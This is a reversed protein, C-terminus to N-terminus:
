EGKECCLQLKIDFRCCAIHIIEKCPKVMDRLILCAFALRLKKFLEADIFKGLGLYALQRLSLLLLYRKDYGYYMVRLEDDEIFRGVTKIDNRRPIHTIEDNIHFCLAFANNDGGVKKVKNFLDTVPSSHYDVSLYDYVVGDFIELM